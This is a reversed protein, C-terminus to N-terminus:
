RKYAETELLIDAREATYGESRLMDLVMALLRASEPRDDHMLIVAGNKLRRGIRRVVKERPIDMTDLSRISWGVVTYGGAKVAKAVTPNTVGYPPRFMAPTRGMAAVVAEACREMDAAMDGRGLLPFRPTHSWSHNGVSHGEDVMRRLIEPHRAANEGTVFFTARVGKDKLVDLVRPTHEPHPGDDFTLAVVKRDTRKRCLAKVYVGARISYSAYFLAVALLLAAAPIAIWACMGIDNVHAARGYM